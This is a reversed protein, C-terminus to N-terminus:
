DPRDTWPYFISIPDIRFVFLGAAVGPDAAFIAEPDAKSRGEVILMGFESYRAGFLIVGEDRPRKINTSHAAFGNQEAPALEPDWYEGTELHVVYRTLTEDALATVTLTLLFAIWLPRTM